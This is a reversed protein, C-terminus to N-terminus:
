RTRWRSTSAPRARMRPSSCGAPRTRASGPSRRRRRKLQPVSAPIGPAISAWKARCARAGAGADNVWESFVISKARLSRWFSASCAKSSRSSPVSAANPISSPRRTASWACAPSINSCANSSRRPAAPSAARDRRAKPGYVRLRRLAQAQEEAMPVFFTKETRGPLEDEVDDKRRRLMVGEIRRRLLDPLNQYGLVRAASTSSPPFRPQLPLSARAEPDM